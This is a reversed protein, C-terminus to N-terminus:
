PDHGEPQLIRRHIGVLANVVSEISADDLDDAHRILWNDMAEGVSFAVEVLLELPLDDRVTGRRQGEEFLTGIYKRMSDFMKEIAESGRVSPPLRLWSRSLALTRPNQFLLSASRIYFTRIGEWFDGSLDPLGVAEISEGYHRTLVEAYLDAKDDFYYYMAGKSLGAREIIRNYSAADFGHQAFEEAAVELIGRQREADLKNFRPRPM